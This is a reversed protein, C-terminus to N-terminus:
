RLFAQVFLVIGSLGTLMSGWWVINMHTLAAVAGLAIAVQFLAVANAFIHHRALLQDAEHSKEDREAEKEKAAKQIDAQEAAYRASTADFEPSPAKGAAMWSQKAADQVAAKIGKAQYYNWQDSAEAQARTAETKLLLAENVTGGAKLAAVAAFAALMATTLAIRKLFGGGEEHLRDHISEHLKDTDVEIEDPV